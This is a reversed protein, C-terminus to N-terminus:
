KYAEALMRTLPTDLQTLQKHRMSKYESEFAGCDKCLDEYAALLKGTDTVNETIHPHKVQCLYKGSLKNLLHRM